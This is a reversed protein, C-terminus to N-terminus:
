ALERLLAIVQELGLGEIRHGTPMVVTLGSPPLIEPPTEVRVMAVPEAERAAAADRRWMQFRWTKIGLTKSCDYIPIGSTEARGVWDLIRRRLDDPYRRRRDPRLKAVESRLQRGEDIITM